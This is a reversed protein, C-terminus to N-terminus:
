ILFRQYLAQLDPPSHKHLYPCERSITSLSTSAPVFFLHTVLAAFLPGPHVSAAVQKELLNFKLAHTAPCGGKDDCSRHSAKQDPGKAAGHRHQQCCSHDGAQHSQSECCSDRHSSAVPAASASCHCVVCFNATFIILLSLAKWQIIKLKLM